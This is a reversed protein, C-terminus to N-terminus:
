QLGGSSGNHLRNKIASLINFPLFTNLLSKLKGRNENKFYNVPSFLFSEILLKRPLAMDSSALIYQMAASYYANSFAEGRIEQISDPLNKLSYFTQVCRITEDAMRVGGMSSQSGRHQRFASLPRPIREFPGILSAQWWFFLDFLIRFQSSFGGIQDFVSKRFLAGPGPLCLHKRIPDIFDFDPKQISAYQVGDEDVLDFDSYVVALNPRELFKNVMTSIANPYLFDDSSLKAVLEGKAMRIAKNLTPTEGMNMQTEWYFRGQYSKLIDETGDPSGDNFVLYEINPYDQQLVSEITQRLYQEHKFTSTVITVLPDKSSM